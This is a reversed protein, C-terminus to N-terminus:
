AVSSISEDILERAENLSKAYFSEEADSPPLVAWYLWGRYSVVRDIAEVQYGRHRYIGPRNQIKYMDFIAYPYSPLPSSARGLHHCANSSVGMVICGSGYPQLWAVAYKEARSPGVSPGTGRITEDGSQTTRM